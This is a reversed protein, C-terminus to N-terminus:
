YVPVGSPEEKERFMDSADVNADKGELRLPNQSLQTQVLAPDMRDDVYELKNPTVDINGVNGYTPNSPTVGGQRATNKEERMYLDPVREKPDQNPLNSRQPGAVRNEDTVSRLAYGENNMVDQYSMGAKYAIGGNIAGTYGQHTAEKGTTMSYAADLETTSSKNLSVPAGPLGINGRNTPDTKYGTTIMHSQESGRANAPPLQQQGRQTDMTFQSDRTQGLTHAQSAIGIPQVQTEERNTMHLDPQNYLMQGNGAFTNAILPNECGRNTEPMDSNSMRGMGNSQYAGGIHLENNGKLGRIDSESQIITPRNTGKTVSAMTPLYSENSRIYFRPNENDPLEEYRQTHMETEGKGQIVRAQLQNLNHENINQPMFRVHSHFGGAAAVEPGVNLGPGVQQAQIPTEFQHYQSPVNRQKFEEDKNFRAQHDNIINPVPQFLPAQETKPNMHRNHHGIFTDLKTTNHFDMPQTVRRANPTPNPALNYKQGSFENSTMDPGSQINNRFNQRNQLLHHQSVDAYPLLDPDISSETNNFNNRPNKGNKNLHYGVGFLGLVVFVTEM